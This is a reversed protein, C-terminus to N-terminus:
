SVAAVVSSSMSARGKAEEIGAHVRTAAILLIEAPLVSAGGPSSIPSQKVVRYHRALGLLWFPSLGWLRGVLVGLGSM